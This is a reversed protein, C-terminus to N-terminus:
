HQTNQAGDYTIYPMNDPNSEGDNKAASTVTAGTQPQIVEITRSPKIPLAVVSQLGLQEQIRFASQDLASAPLALALAILTAISPLHKVIKM